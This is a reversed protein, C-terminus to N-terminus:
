NLLDKIFEKAKEEKNYKRQLYDILTEKVDHGKIASMIVSFFRHSMYKAVFGRRNGGDGTKIINEIEIIFSALYDLVQHNIEQLEDRKTKSVTSLVDDLDDELILKLISKYSDAESVLRHRDLYWNSKIKVTESNTFRIVFGEIDKETKCKEICEDLTLDFEKVVEIPCNVKHPNIFEGDANRVAILILKNEKYDLVIKNDEGVLEFIPSWGQDFMDLIFFHLETNSDLIDQAMKVQSNTFGQKTKLVLEGNVLIPQIMSGDAKDYVHKITWNKVKNYQYDENENLNWFKRLAPFVREKDSNVITLGRLERHDDTKFSSYDNLLYNYVSVISNKIKHEKCYFNKEKTVIKDATFHSIM